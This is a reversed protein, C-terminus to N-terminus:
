RSINVRIKDSVMFEFDLIVQSFKTLPMLILQLETWNKGAFGTPSCTTHNGNHIMGSVSTVCDHPVDRNHLPLLCPVSKSLHMGSSIFHHVEFKGDVPEFADDKEALLETHQM